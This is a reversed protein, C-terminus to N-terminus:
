FADFNKKLAVIDKTKKDIAKWVIGYAGKGILQLNTISKLPLIIEILIINIKSIRVLNKFYKM